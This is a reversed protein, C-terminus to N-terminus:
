GMGGEGDSASSALEEGLRRMFRQRSEGGAICVYHMDVESDAEDLLMEVLAPVRGLAAELEAMRQRLATNEAEADAWLEAPTDGDGFLPSNAIMDDISTNNRM